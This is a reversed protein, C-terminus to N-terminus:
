HKDNSNMKLEELRNKLENIKQQIIIIEEEKGFRKVWMSQLQQNLIPEDIIEIIKKSDLYDINNASQLDCILRNIKNIAFQGVLGNKLFFSHTMLNHINAAFSNSPREQGELVRGATLYVINYNPIDSLSVPSHSAFIFQLNLNRENTYGKRLTFIESTIQLLNNIYNKQWQLHFGTEGEDILFLINDPFREKRRSFDERVSYLRSFLNLYAKEGSSLEHWDIDLFGFNQYRSEKTIDPSYKNLEVLYRIYKDLLRKTQSLPLKFSTSIVGEHDVLESNNLSLKLEEWFELIFSTNLGLERNQNLTNLLIKFGKEADIDVPQVLGIVDDLPYNYQPYEIDFCLYFNTILQELILRKYLPKEKYRTNNVDDINGNRFKDLLLKFCKNLDSPVNKENVNKALYTTIIVKEPLHILDDIAKRQAKSINNIFNIQRWTDQHKHFLIPDKIEHRFGRIDIHDESLLVNSSVDYKLNPYGPSYNSFDIVPSFFVTTLNDRNISEFKEESYVDSNSIYGFGENTKFIMIYRSDVTDFLHHHWYGSIAIRLAALLNSKGCGNEGIIASVNNVRGGTESLFFNTVYKDNNIRELKLRNSEQNIQFTYDSGFNIGVDNLNRYHEVWFFVLQKLNAIEM